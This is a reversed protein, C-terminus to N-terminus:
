KSHASRRGALNWWGGVISERARLNIKTKRPHIGVVSPGSKYVEIEALKQKAIFYPPPFDLKIYRCSYNAFVVYDGMINVTGGGSWITTASYVQKLTWNIGDNSTSIPIFCEWNTFYAFKLHMRAIAYVSGLDIVATNVDSVTKTDGDFLLSANTAVSGETSKHLAINVNDGTDIPTSGTTNLVSINDFHAWPDLSPSTPVLKLYRKQQMPFNVPMNSGAGASVLTGEFITEGWAAVDNSAYLKFSIFPPHKPESQFWLQNFTQVAGMDIQIYDGAGFENRYTYDGNTILGLGGHPDCWDQDEGTIALAIDTNGNITAKWGTRALPTPYQTPSDGEPDGQTREFLEIESVDATAYNPDSGHPSPEALPLIVRVYQYTVNPLLRADQPYQPTFVRLIDTWLKGDASGQVKYWQAIYSKDPFHLIIKFLKKPSGLNVALAGRPSESKGEAHNTTDGDFAQTPNKYGVCHEIDVKGMAINVNASQAMKPFACFLSIALSYLIKKRRFEKNM